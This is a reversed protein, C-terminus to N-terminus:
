ETMKLCGVGYKGWAVASSAPQPGPVARAACVAAPLCQASPQFATNLGALAFGVPRVWPTVASKKARRPPTLVVPSCVLLNEHRRQFFPLTCFHSHLGSQPVPQLFFLFNAFFTCESFEGTKGQETFSKHEPFHIGRHRGGVGGLHRRAAGQNIYLYM